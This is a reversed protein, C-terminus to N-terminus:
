LSTLKTRSIMHDKWNVLGAIFRYSWWVSAIKSMSDTVHGLCKDVSKTCIFPWIHVWDQTKLKSISEVIDV